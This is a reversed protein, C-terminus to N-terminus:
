RADIPYAQYIFLSTGTLDTGWNSADVLEWSSPILAKVHLGTSGVQRSTWWVLEAPITFWFDACLASVAVVLVAFRPTLRGLLPRGYPRKRRIPKPSPLDTQVAETHAPENM